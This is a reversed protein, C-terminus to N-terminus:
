FLPKETVPELVISDKFCVLKIYAMVGIKKKSQISNFQAMIKCFIKM